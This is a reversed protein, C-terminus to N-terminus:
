RHFLRAIWGPKKEDQGADPVTKHHELLRTTELSRMELFQVTKLSDSLSAFLKEKDLQAVREAEQAAALRALLVANETRLRVLESEEADSM